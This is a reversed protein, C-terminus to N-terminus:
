SCEALSHRPATRSSFAWCWGTVGVCPGSLTPSASLLGRTRSGPGPAPGTAGRASAVAAGKDAPAATDEGPVPSMGRPQESAPSRSRQHSARCVTRRGRQWAVTGGRCRPRPHIDQRWWYGVLCALHGESRGAAPLHKWADQGRGPGRGAERGAGGAPGGPSQSQAKKGPLGEHSGPQRSRHALGQPVSDAGGAAWCLACPLRGTSHPWPSPLSPIFLSAELSASPPVTPRQHARLGVVGPGSM